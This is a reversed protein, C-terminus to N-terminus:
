GGKIKLDKIEKQKQKEKVLELNDNAILLSEYLNQKYLNMVDEFITTRELKKFLFIAIFSGITDSLFPTASHM